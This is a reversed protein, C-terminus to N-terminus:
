KIELAHVRDKLTKIEDRLRHLEEALDISVLGGGGVPPIPDPEFDELELSKLSIAGAALANVASMDLFIDDKGPQRLIFQTALVSTRTELAGNAVVAGEILVNSRLGIGGSYDSNYNISLVDGVVHVFARRIAGPDTGPRREPSNVEFDPASVHLRDAEIVVVNDLVKIDGRM